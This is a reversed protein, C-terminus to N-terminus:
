KYIYGINSATLRGKHQEWWITSILQKKTAKELEAIQSDNILLHVVFKVAHEVHSFSPNKTIINVIDLISKLM